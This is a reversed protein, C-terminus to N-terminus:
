TDYPTTEAAAALMAIHALESKAADAEALHRGVLLNRTHFFCGPLAGRVPFKYFM